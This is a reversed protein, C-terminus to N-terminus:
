CSLGTYVVTHKESIETETEDLPFSEYVLNDTMIAREEVDESSTSNAARPVVESSMTYLFNDVMVIQEGETRSSASQPPVIDNLRGPQCETAPIDDRSAKVVDVSKRRVCMGVVVIVVAIAIVGGIVSVAITYVKTQIAPLDSKVAPVATTHEPIHSFTTNDEGVVHKGASSNNSTAHADYPCAYRRYRIQTFAEDM